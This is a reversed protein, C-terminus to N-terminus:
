ITRMGKFVRSNGVTNLRGIWTLKGSTSGSITALVQNEANITMTVDYNGLQTFLNFSVMYRLKEPNKRIKWLGISGEATVGGVNNSGMRTDSGTQIVGDPDDVMIFNLHSNVPVRIGYKNQLFDAEIVFSKSTLLSDMISYNQIMEAKRIEKRSLKRDQSHGAASIVLFGFILFFKVFNMKVNKM